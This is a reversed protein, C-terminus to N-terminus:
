HSPPALDGLLEKADQLTVSIAQMCGEASTLYGGQRPQHSKCSELATATLTLSPALPLSAGKNRGKAPSTPPTM